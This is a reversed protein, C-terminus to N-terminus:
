SPSSENDTASTPIVGSAALQTKPIFADALRASAQDALGLFFRSM